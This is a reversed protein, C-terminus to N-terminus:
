LTKETIISFPTKVTPTPTRERCGASQPEPSLESVAERGRLRAVECHFRSPQHVCANELFATGPCNTCLNILGCETCPSVQGAGLRQARLTPFHDYFGEAFTGQRLDYSAFRTMSCMSMRGCPDIHFSGEGAGCIYVLERDVSQPARACLRQFGAIKDPDLRDLAVIQGPELRHRCPEEGGDVRPDLMPDWRYDLGLERAYKDM